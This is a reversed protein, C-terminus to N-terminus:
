EFGDRRRQARNSYYDAAQRTMDKIAQQRASHYEADVNFSKKDGFQNQNKARKVFRGLKDRPVINRQLVPRIEDRFIMQAQSGWWGYFLATFAGMLGDDKGPRTVVQAPRKRFVIKGTEDDVFAMAKVQRLKASIRVTQGYEMVPAKWTFVHIGEQVVQGKPGPELLEPEIPTPRISPLFVFGVSRRSGMGTGVLKWLRFKPIGVTSHDGYEDGWEYVHHYKEPNSMAILDAASEFRDRLVTETYELASEVYKDTSAYQFVGTVYGNFADSQSDDMDFRASM